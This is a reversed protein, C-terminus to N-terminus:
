RIKIRSGRLRFRRNKERKCFLSMGARKASQTRKRSLPFIFAGAGQFDLLYSADKREGEQKAGSKESRSWVMKKRSGRKKRGSKKDRLVAFRGSM